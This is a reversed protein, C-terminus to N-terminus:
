ARAPACHQFKPGLAELARAGCSRSRVKDGSPARAAAGAGSKAVTALPGDSLGFTIICEGLTPDLRGSSCRSRRKPPALFCSVNTVKQGRDISPSKQEVDDCKQAPPQVYPNKDFPDRNVLVAPLGCEDAIYWFM